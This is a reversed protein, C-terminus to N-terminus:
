FLRESEGGAISEIDSFDQSLQAAAFPLTSYAATLKWRKTVDTHAEKNNIKVFSLAFLVTFYVFLLRSHTKEDQASRLESGFSIRTENELLSFYTHLTCANACHILTVLLLSLLLRVGSNGVSNLHLFIPITIMTLASPLPGFLAFRRARKMVATAELDRETLGPTANISKQLASRREGPTPSVGETGALRRFAYQTRLLVLGSVVVVLFGAVSLLYFSFKIAHIVFSSLGFPLTRVIRPLPM